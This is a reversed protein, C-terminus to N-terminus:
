VTIKLVLSYRRNWNHVHERQMYQLVFVFLFKTSKLLNKKYIKFIKLFQIKYIHDDLFRWQPWTLDVFFKLVIPEATKINIPCLCVSLCDIFRNLHIQSSVQVPLVTRWPYCLWTRNTYSLRKLFHVWIKAANRGRYLRSIMETNDLLGMGCWWISGMLM